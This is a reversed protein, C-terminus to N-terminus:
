LLNEINVFEKHGQVGEYVLEGGLREYLTHVEGELKDVEIIDFYNKKISEM